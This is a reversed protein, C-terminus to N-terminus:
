FSIKELCLKLLNYRNVSRVQIIGHHQKSSCETDGNRVIFAAKFVASVNDWFNLSSWKFTLKIPYVNVDILSYVHIDPTKLIKCICYFVTVVFDPVALKQNTIFTSQWIIMSCPSSFDSQQLRSNMILMKTILTNYQVIGSYCM